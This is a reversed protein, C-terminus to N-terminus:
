TSGGKEKVLSEQRSIIPALLRVLSVRVGRECGPARHWHGTQHIKPTRSGSCFWAQPPATVLAAAVRPPDVPVPPAEIPEEMPLTVREISISV